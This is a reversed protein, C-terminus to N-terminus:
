EQIVINCAALEPFIHLYVSNQYCTGFLQYFMWKPDAVDTSLLIEFNEVRDRDCLINDTETVM